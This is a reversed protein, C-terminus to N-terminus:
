RGGKVNPKRKGKKNPTKKPTAAPTAPTESPSPTPSGPSSLAPSSKSPTSPPLPASSSPPSAPTPASSTPAPEPPADAQSALPAPAAPPAAAATASIPASDAAATPSTSQPAPPSGAAPLPNSPSLTLSSPTLYSTPSLVASPPGSALKANEEDRKKPIDRYIDKWREHSVMDSAVNFIKQGYGPEFTNAEGVVEVIEAELEKEAVLFREWLDDGIQGKQLLTTLSTKADRVQWILKVDDMARRLLAAVLIPRPPPPDLSLLSVYIDRSKHPPFWPEPNAKSAAQRRRYVKSFVSLSVVLFAVYALPAFISLTRDLDLLPFFPSPSPSRCTLPAPSVLSLPLTLTCPPGM